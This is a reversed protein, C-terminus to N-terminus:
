SLAVLANDQTSSRGRRPLDVQVRSDGARRPRLRQQQPVLHRTRDLARRLLELPLRSKRMPMRCPGLEVPAPKKM